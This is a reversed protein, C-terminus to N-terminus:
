YLNHDELRRVYARSQVLSGMNPFELVVHAVHLGVKEPQSRSGM